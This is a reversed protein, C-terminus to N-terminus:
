DLFMFKFVFYDHPSQAQAQSFASFEIEPAMNFSNLLNEFVPFLLFIPPSPTPSSLDKEGGGRSWNKKEEWNKEKSNTLCPVLFRIQRM